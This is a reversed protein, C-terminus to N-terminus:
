EFLSFRQLMARMHRPNSDMIMEVAGDYTTNFRCFRYFYLKVERGIQCSTWLFTVHSSKRIKPRDLEYILPNLCIISDAFTMEYIAIRLELPLCVLLSRTQNYRLHRSIQKM